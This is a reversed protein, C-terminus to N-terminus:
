RSSVYGGMENYRSAAASVDILVTFGKGPVREELALKFNLGKLRPAGCSAQM